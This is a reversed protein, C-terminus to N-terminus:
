DGKTLNQLQESRLEWCNAHPQDKVDIWFFDGIPKSTNIAAVVGIAHGDHRSLVRWGAGFQQQCYDHAEDVSEFQDGAVPATFRAEGGSWHHAAEAMGAPLSHASYKFCTLPLRMECSYCGSYGCWVGDLKAPGFLDVEKPWSSEDVQTGSNFPSWQTYITGKKVKPGNCIVVGIFDVITDDAITIDITRFMGGASQIYELVNNAVKANSPSHFDLDSLRVVYLDNFVDWNRSQQIQNIESDFVDAAFQGEYSRGIKITDNKITSLERMRIVLLGHATERPFDFQKGIFRDQGGVDFDRRKAGAKQYYQIVGTEDSPEAGDPSYQDEVGGLLIAKTEGKRCSYADLRDMGSSQNEATHEAATKNWKLFGGSYAMGTLAVMGALLGFIMAFLITTADRFM